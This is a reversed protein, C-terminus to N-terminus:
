DAFVGETGRRIYYCGVSTGVIIFFIMMMKIINAAMYRPMSSEGFKFIFRASNIYPIGIYTMKMNITTNPQKRNSTVTLPM